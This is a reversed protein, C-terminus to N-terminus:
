YGKQLLGTKKGDVTGAELWELSARFMLRHNMEWMANHSSCALDVFVKDTAGLDQYLERVRDISVQRDLAGALLLTPMTTKGVLAPTWGWSTTAPARRIGPGWTAGVPDSALMETWVSEAVAPEYQNPCGVQRDWNALFDQRSQKTM